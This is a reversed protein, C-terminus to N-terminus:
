EGVNPVSNKGVRAGIIRAAENYRAMQNVALSRYGNITTKEVDDIDQSQNVKMEIQKDVYTKLKEIFNDIENM